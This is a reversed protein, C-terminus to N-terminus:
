AQSLSRRYARLAKLDDVDTLTRLVGFAGDTRDAVDSLTEAHSWRVGGFFDPRLPGNAGMLWFGGDSAPGFVHSHSKLLTFAQAIDSADVQPCDTGITLTPGKRGFLAALRPSLSGSVQPVQAFGAWDPVRGLARPPTVALVVDWRPDRVQRLVQAMMRRYLRKAHVPGIDRALRTKAHGMIPAKTVVYLRPKM